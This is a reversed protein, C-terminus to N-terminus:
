HNFRFEASTVLAWALDEIGRQRRDHYNGLFSVCQELEAADPARGLVTQFLSEVLSSDNTQDVLSRLRRSNKITVLENIAEGNTLMLGQAVNALSEEALVDPFLTVFEIKRDVSNWRDPDDPDIVTLLSRHLTEATLPKVSAVSFWQPDVFDDARSDLQYARTMALARVFRRVDYGSNAFDEALADLLEPHSPPHFSDIADVPHVIGRGMKWGWLRNVMSKAVLPHDRLVEHVFRDRRSFKPVRPENADGPLYLQDSEEQQQDAAPRSEEVHRDGLFVLENPASDGYISTFESFGGIASEGVRPGAPTDVNKSRNFFAVLGWYHRQEIEYALPHDHCQACDIRVGFLDKSVAEAIAQPEDKRSYLYWVAGQDDKSQPRALALEQAVQDWPRNEKVVSQLYDFWGARQRRKWQKADTRGILIADLVEAFHIAHEDSALLRDILEVRKDEAQDALFSDLEQPEPVRGVLDLYIRRAFTRDDAPSSPRVNNAAWGAELAVDIAATPGAAFDLVPQDVAQGDSTGDGVANDGVASDGPPNDGPPDDAAVVQGGLVQAGLVLTACFWVRIAVSLIPAFLTRM